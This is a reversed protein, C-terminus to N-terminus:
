SNRIDTFTRIMDFLGSLMASDAVTRDDTSESGLKIPPYCAVPSKILEMKIISGHGISISATELLM